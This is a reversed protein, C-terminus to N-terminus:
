ERFAHEIDMKRKDQMINKFTSNQSIYIHSAIVNLQKKEKKKTKNNNQTKMEFALKVFSSNLFELTISLYLSSRAHSTCEPKMQKVFAQDLYEFYSM